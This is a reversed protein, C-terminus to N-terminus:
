EDDWATAVGAPFESLLVALGDPDRVICSRVGPAHEVLTEEEVAIGRDRLSHMTSALDDVALALHARLPSGLPASTSETAPQLLQLVFGERRLLVAEVPGENVGLVCRVRAEDFTDRAVVTFGLADRYFALARDLNAVGLAVHLMRVIAVPVTYRM